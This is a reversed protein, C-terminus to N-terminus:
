TETVKIREVTVQARCAFQCGIHKQLQLSLSIHKESIFIDVTGTRLTPTFHFFFLIHSNLVASSARTKDDTKTQYLASILNEFDM